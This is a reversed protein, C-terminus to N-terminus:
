GHLPQEEISLPAGLAPLSTGKTYNAKQRKDAGCSNQIM